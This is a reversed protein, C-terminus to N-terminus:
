DWDTDGLREVAAQCVLRGVEQHDPMTWAVRWAEKRNRYAWEAIARWTHNDRRSKIELADEDSMRGRLEAVFQDRDTGEFWVEAWPFAERAAERWAAYIPATETDMQAGREMSPPNEWHRTMAQMVLDDWYEPDYGDTM